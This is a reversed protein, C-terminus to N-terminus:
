QNRSSDQATDHWEQHFLERLRDLEDTRPLLSLQYAFNAKQQRLSLQNFDLGEPASGGGTPTWGLEAIESAQIQEAVLELTAKECHDQANAGTLECHASSPATFTFLSIVPAPDHHHDKSLASALEKSDVEEEVPFLQRTIDDDHASHSAQSELHPKEPSEEDSIFEYDTTSLASAAATCRLESTVLSASLPLSTAIPESPPSPQFAGEIKDLQFLSRTQSEDIAILRPGLADISIKISDLQSITSLESHPLSKTSDDINDLLALSRSQSEDIAILRPGLADVSLKITDLQLANVSAQTAGVVSLIAKVCELIQAVQGELKGM